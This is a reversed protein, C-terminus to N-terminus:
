SSRRSRPRGESPPSSILGGLAFLETADTIDSRAINLVSIVHAALVDLAPGALISRAEHEAVIRQLRPHHAAIEISGDRARVMPDVGDVVTYTFSTIGVARIRQALSDLMRSLPTPAPKDHTRRALSDLIHSLPTPPPVPKPPPEAREDEERLRSGFAKRLVGAVESGDDFFAM